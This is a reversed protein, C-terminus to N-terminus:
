KRDRAVSEGLGAAADGVGASVVRPLRGTVAPYARFQYFIPVWRVRLPADTTLTVAQVFWFPPTPLVVVTTFRAAYRAREPVEVSTM